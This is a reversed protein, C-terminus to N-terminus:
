QFISFDSSKRRKKGSKKPKQSHYSSGFYIVMQHQTFCFCLCFSYLHYYCNQKLLFIFNCFKMWKEENLSSFFPSLFLHFLFSVASQLIILLSADYLNNAFRDHPGWKSDINVKPRVGQSNGRRPWNYRLFFPM